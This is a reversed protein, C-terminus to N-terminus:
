FVLWFVLGRCVICPKGNLHTLWLGVVPNMAEQRDQLVGQAVEPLGGLAIRTTHRGTIQCAGATGAQRNVPAFAAALTRFIVGFLFLVVAGLVM